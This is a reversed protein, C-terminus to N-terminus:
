PTEWRAVFVRAQVGRKSDEVLARLMELVDEKRAERAATTTGQWGLEMWRLSRQRAKGKGDEPAGSHAYASGHPTGGRARERAPGRAASVEIVEVGLRRTAERVAAHEATM